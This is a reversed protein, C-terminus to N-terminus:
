NLVKWRLLNRSEWVDFKRSFISKREGDNAYIRWL